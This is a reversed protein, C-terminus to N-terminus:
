LSYHATGEINVDVVSMENNLVPIFKTMFLTHWNHIWKNGVGLVPVTKMVTQRNRQRNTLIICIGSSTDEQFFDSSPDHDLKSGMLNQCLDPDGDPYLVYDLNKWKSITM